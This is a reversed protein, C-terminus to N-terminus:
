AGGVAPCAGRQSLVGSGRSTVLFGIGLLARLGLMWLDHVSTVVNTTSVSTCHARPEEQHLVIGPRM